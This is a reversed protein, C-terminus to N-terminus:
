LYLSQGPYSVIYEVGTKSVAEYERLQELVIEGVSPGGNFKDKVHIIVVKLGRLQMEDIPAHAAEIDGEYADADATGERSNLAAATPSAFNSLPTVPGPMEIDGLNLEATPTALHPSDMANPSPASLSDVYSPPRAPKAPMDIDSDLSLKATPTALHPPGTVNSGSPSDAYHPVRSTKPSISEETHLRSLKHHSPNSTPPAVTTPLQDSTKRRALLAGVDSGHRKRKKDAISKLDGSNRRESSASAITAHLRDRKFERATKVEKALAQM